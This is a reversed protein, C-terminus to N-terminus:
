VGGVDVEQNQLCILVVAINVKLSGHVVGHWSQLNAIRWINDYRSATWHSGSRKDGVKTCSIIERPFTKLLGDSDESLSDSHDAILHSQCGALGDQYDTDQSRRWIWEATGDKKRSIDRERSSFLARVQLFGSLENRNMSGRTKLANQLQEEPEVM